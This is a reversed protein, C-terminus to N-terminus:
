KKIHAMVRVGSYGIADNDGIGGNSYVYKMYPEASDPTRLWYSVDGLMREADTPFYREIEDKSPIFLYDDTDPGPDRGAGVDQLVHSLLLKAKEQPNFLSNLMEESNLVKRLDSISWDAHTVKEDNNSAMFCSQGISGKTIILFSTDDEDIVTWLLDEYGDLAEANEDHLGFKFTDGVKLNAIRGNLEADQKPETTGNAYGKVDNENYVIWMAPRVGNKEDVDWGYTGAKSDWGDVCAAKDSSYGMDRLWWTMASGFGDIDKLSYIKKKYKSLLYDTPAGHITTGKGTVYKTVEDVSLLFVCDETEYSKYEYDEVYSTMVKSKLVLAKENDNFANNYFDDNLYKRLDSDKYLCRTYKSGEGAKKFYGFELVKDSLVLAKGVHQCIVTWTIAEAGNGSNGDQEWAGLTVKDGPKANELTAKVSAADTEARKGAPRGDTGDDKDGTSGSVIKGLNCGCLASLVTLIVLFLAIFRLKKM